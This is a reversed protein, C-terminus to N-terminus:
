EKLGISQVSVFLLYPRSFLGIRFGLFLKQDDFVLYGLPNRLLLPDTSILFCFCWATVSLLSFGRDFSIDSFFNMVGLFTDAWHPPWSRFAWFM